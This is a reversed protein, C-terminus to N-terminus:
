APQLGQEGRDRPMAVLGVASVGIAVIVVVAGLGVDGAREWLQAASTAGIVIGLNAVSAITAFARTRRGGDTANALMAFWSAELGTLGAGAVITAPYILYRPAETVFAIPFLAILACSLIAVDRRGRRDAFRGLWPGVLITGLAFLAYVFGIEATSWALREAAFPAYTTIFAGFAAQFALQIVFLTGLIRRTSPEGLASGPVPATVRDTTRPGPDPDDSDKPAALSEARGVRTSSGVRPLFLAGIAGALSTLAVVFFPLRVDALAALFGGIVPGLVGGAAGASSVVANAAALRAREVVSALYLREGTASVGGGVGALTRFAVLPLSSAATAILVNALAYVGIGGAILRRPQFREALFGTALGGLANAVAFSSTLLGLVFPTAGLAVAYLPLLPLMVSVGVQIIFSIAALLVLRRDLARARDAIRTRRGGVM